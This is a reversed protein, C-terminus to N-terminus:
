EIFDYVVDYIHMPSLCLKNCKEILEILEAKSLTIDEIRMIEKKQEKDVVSIGYGMYNQGELIYDGEFLRYEYKFGSPTM